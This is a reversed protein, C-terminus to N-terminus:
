LNFAQTLSAPSYPEPLANLEFVVNQGNLQAIDQGFENHTLKAVKGNGYVAVLTWPRNKLLTFRSAMQSPTFYVVTNLGPYLAYLTYNGDTYEPLEVAAVLQVAESEDLYKDYNYFGFQNIGAQNFVQGKVKSQLYWDSTTDVEEYYEGDWDGFDDDLWFGDESATATEGWVDPDNAEEPPANSTQTVAQDALLQWQNTTTDFSFLQLGPTPKEATTKVEVRIEPAIRLDKGNQTASLEFMGGSLLQHSHDDHGATMPTGSLFIDLPTTLERYKIEVLGRVPQGNADVLANAPVCVISGSPHLFTQCQDPNYTWTAYKPTLSPIPPKPQAVSLLPQLLVFFLAYWAGRNKFLM